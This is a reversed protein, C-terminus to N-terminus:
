EEEEDIYSPDDPVYTDSALLQAFVRQMHENHLLHKSLLMRESEGVGGSSLRSELLGVRREYYEGGRKMEASLLDLEEVCRAKEVLCRLLIALLRPKGAAGPLRVGWPYKQGLVNTYADSALIADNRSKRELPPGRANQVTTWQKLQQWLDRLREGAKTKERKALDREKKRSALSVMVQELSYYDMVAGEIETCLQGIEHEALEVLAGKFEATDTQWLAPGYDPYLREVAAVRARLEKILQPRQRITVSDAGPLLLGLPVDGEVDAAESSELKQLMLRDRAYEARWSVPSLAPEETVHTDEQMLCEVQDLVQTAESGLEATLATIRAEMAAKIAQARVRMRWLRAPLGLVVHKCHMRGVFELHAERNIPSMYRTIAGHPGMVSNFIEAPEGTGRGVGLKRTHGFAKQCAMSHAYRHWPPIIGQVHRGKEVVGPDGEQELWKGFSKIWRCAIDYWWFHVASGAVFLSWLAATSYLHREGRFFNMLRLLMGHRCVMVGVATILNKQSEASLVKDAHFTSCHTSGMSDTTAAARDLSQVVTNNIFYRRYPLQTYDQTYGGRRLLNLRFCGDFHCSHFYRPGGSVSEVSRWPWGGM